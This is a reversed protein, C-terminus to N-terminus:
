KGATRRARWAFWAYFPLGAGVLLAGFLANRTNEIVSLVVYVGAFAAFALPVWPYGPVRYPRPVEPFRARALIVAVALLGYFAWSVFILMDTVQDFTGSFVLVASWVGQVWLAVDPTDRRPHVRALGDFFVRDRAMAFYVRASALATGNVTGFTSLVVALAVAAAAFPLVKGLADTAVLTSGRIEDVPLLHFYSLNVLLYSVVVAAMGVALARPM